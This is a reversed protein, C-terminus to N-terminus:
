LNLAKSPQCCMVVLFDTLQQTLSTIPLLSVALMPRAKTLYTQVDASRRRRLRRTM